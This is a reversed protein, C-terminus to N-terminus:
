KESKNRRPEQVLAIKLDLAGCVKEINALSLGRGHNAFQGLASESVGADKAIRYRSKGSKTIASQLLGVLAPKGSMDVM